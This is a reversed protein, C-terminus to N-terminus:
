LVRRIYRRIVILYFIFGSLCAFILLMLADRNNVIIRDIREVTGQVTQNNTTSQNAQASEPVPRVVSVLPRYNWIPRASGIGGNGNTSDTVIQPEVPETVVPPGPDIPCTEPTIYRLQQTGVNVVEYVCDIPLVQQRFNTTEAVAVSGYLLFASMIVVYKM